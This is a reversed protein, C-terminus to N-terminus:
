WSAEFGVKLDIMRSLVTTVRKAELVVSSPESGLDAM